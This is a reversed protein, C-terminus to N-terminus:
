SKKFIEKNVCQPPIEGKLGAIMNKVAIVAMKTRTETTASAAHPQLVVNYLTKLDKEIYPEREYVDLGAGLIWNEKLGWEAM